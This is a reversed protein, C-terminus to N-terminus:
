VPPQEVVEVQEILEVVDQPACLETGPLMATAAGAAIGSRMAEHLPLGRTLSLIILAVMSDGAGVASQTEVDPPQLRVCEDHSVVLAGESGLSVVVVESQGREVIDAATREQEEPTNLERGTLESLELLNPKIMFVGEDLAAQLAEGSADVVIRVGDRKGRRAVHAYFDAPVGSPLSGSAIIYQPPPEFTFIENLCRQWEDESLTPGPLVFRFEQGDSEDLVSFNQRTEDAISIPQHNLKEGDLMGQLMRGYPGGSTYFAKATGGLRQIVRAVNIGGGGPEYRAPQCRIKHEPVVQEVISSVDVSPNMTLTVIMGM